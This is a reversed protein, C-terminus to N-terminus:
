DVDEVVVKEGTVKQSLAAAMYPDLAGDLVDDPSTSVVGTRLDKVMQYPQLVYSRIQHGWGIETKAQYEGSAAAEREALEKEYLRAKLMNMATARNKHQSRDNQCAVIINTPVHTIRVASDTTNVHQGGAGSARYTDIKLDAPNIEIDINDDIVPYVWVSSFSTHRRASSDYPSIRVLRHVGSETKAYGYANEGKILLTASKIGAQEGAQYDVLEVKYGRKEAWRQYMRQLMEAWDQSETGGAGAHIELYTDSGDAEGALLAKIKDEDAKDALQSLSAVAEDGLATDGEADAMELLEVTDTKEADIARTASIANDLRTRERMVEQAKKPDDWLTPDEVRANLEDLRRLARDWDLFRRLLDLAADIRDVLAQAEARM